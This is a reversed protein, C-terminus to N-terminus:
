LGTEGLLTKVVIASSTKNEEIKQLLKRGKEDIQYYKREQEDWRSKIYQKHELQHLTTYLFGEHNEFKTIGRARLLSLLDIGTREQNLLQLISEVIKEKRIERKINAKHQDTFKLEKFTSKKFSQRLNQLGKDM